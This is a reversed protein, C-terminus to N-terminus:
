SIAIGTSSAMSFRNSRPDPPLNKNADVSATIADTRWQQSGDMKRKGSVLLNQFIVSWIKALYVLAPSVQIKRLFVKQFCDLCSEELILALITASGQGELGGRCHSCFVRLLPAAYCLPLISAEWGAAGPKIRPTGLFKREINSINIWPM